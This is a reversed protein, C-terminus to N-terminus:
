ADSNKTDLQLGIVVMTAIAVIYDTQEEPFVMGIPRAQAIEDSTPVSFTSEDEPDAYGDLRVLELFQAKTEESVFSFLLEYAPGEPDGVLALMRSDTAQAFGSLRGMWDIHPADVKPSGSMVVVTVLWHKEDLWHPEIGDDGLMKQIEVAVSMGDM